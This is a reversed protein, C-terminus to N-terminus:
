TSYPTQPAEQRIPQGSSSTAGAGIGPRAGQYREGRTDIAQLHKAWRKELEAPTESSPPDSATERLM